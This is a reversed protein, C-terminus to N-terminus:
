QAETYNLTMNPLQIHVPISKPEDPEWPEIQEVSLARDMEERSRTPRVGGLIWAVYRSAWQELHKVEGTEGFVNSWGDFNILERDPKNPGPGYGPRVIKILEGGQNIVADVENWFRTDPILLVDLGHDTRLLYDVWTGEYVQERVAPTGFDIWIQRPSKGLAPLIIERESAGPETEYYDPDKLGAWGYLEYCIQKLKYAWPIKGVRITPDAQNLQRILSNAFTDKGVRRYHGIAIVKTMM